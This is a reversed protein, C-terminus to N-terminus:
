RRLKAKRRSSESTSLDNGSRQSAPATPVPPLGDPLNADDVPTLQEDAAAGVSRTLPARRPESDVRAHRQAMDRHVAAAVDSFKRRVDPQVELREIMSQLKDQNREAADSIKGLFNASETFNNDATKGVLPQLTRVVVEAGVNKLLLFVDLSSAVSYTRKEAQYYESKLVLVCQGPIQRRLLPGEYAGSALLVHLKPTGYLLELRGTTGAGDSADFTFQGTRQLRISTSGMLQWISVVIEPHRILCLFLDPHCKVQHKPIRRFLTPDEVVDSIARKARDTLESFPIQAMADRRQRESIRLSQRRPAALLSGCSLWAMSAYLAQRRSCLSDSLWSFQDVGEVKTERQLSQRM